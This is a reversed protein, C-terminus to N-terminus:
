LKAPYCSLLLAAKHFSPTIQDRRRHGCATYRRACPRDIRRIPVRQEFRRHRLHLLLPLHVVATTVNKNITIVAM